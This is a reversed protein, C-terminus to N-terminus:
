SDAYADFTRAFPSKDNSSMGTTRLPSEGATRRASSYLISERKSWQASSSNWSVLRLWHSAIDFRTSSLRWDPSPRVTNM